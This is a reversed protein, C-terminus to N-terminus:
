VEGDSNAQAPMQNASVLSSLSDSASYAAPNSPLIDSSSAQRTNRHSDHLSDHFIPYSPPLEGPDPANSAVSLRRKTETSEDLVDECAEENLTQLAGCIM